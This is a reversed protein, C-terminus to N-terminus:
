PNLVEDRVNGGEVRTWLWGRLSTAHRLGDHPGEGSDPEWDDAEYLLMPNDVAILSLHWQM